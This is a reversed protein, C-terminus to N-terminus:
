QGLGLFCDGVGVEEFVGDEEGEVVVVYVQVVQVVEDGVGGGDGYGEEDGEVDVGEEYM